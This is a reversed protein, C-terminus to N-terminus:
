VTELCNDNVITINEFMSFENNWPHPQNIMAKIM